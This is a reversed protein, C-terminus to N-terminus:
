KLFNKLKDIFSANKGTHKHADTKLYSLLQPVENLTVWDQLGDYWVMDDQLLGKEELQELSYPGQM